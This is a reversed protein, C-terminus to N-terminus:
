HVLRQILDAQRSVSFMVSVAGAAKPYVLERTTGTPEPRIVLGGCYFGIYSDAVM